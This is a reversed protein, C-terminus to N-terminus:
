SSNHSDALFQHYCDVLEDFYCDLGELYNALREMREAFNQIGLVHGYQQVKKLKDKTEEIATTYRFELGKPDIENLQRIYSNLGKINEQPVVKNGLALLAPRLQDWLWQLSHTWNGEGEVKNHVAESLRENGTRHRVGADDAKLILRKLMLEVHHRYLYVIPFILYNQDWGRERIHEVALRAAVRYGQACAYAPDRGHLSANTQTGAPDLRFVLDSEQPPKSFNEEVWEPIAPFDRM